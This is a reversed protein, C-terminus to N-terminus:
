GTGKVSSRLHITLGKRKVKRRAPRRGSVKKRATQAKGGRKANWRAKAARHYTRASVYMKKARLLHTDPKVGTAEAAALQAEAATLDPSAKLLEAVVASVLREAKRKGFRKLAAALGSKM